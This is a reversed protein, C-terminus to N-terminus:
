WGTYGSYTKTQAGEVQWTPGLTASPWKGDFICRLLNPGPAQWPIAEISDMLNRRPGPRQFVDLVVHDSTALKQARDSATWCSLENLSAPHSTDWPMPRTELIPLRKTVGMM